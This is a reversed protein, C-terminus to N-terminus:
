RIMNSRSIPKKWLLMWVVSVIPKWYKAMPILRNAMPASALTEAYWARIEVRRNKAMGEPTGNTAVPQSEGKGSATFATAPLNLRTKLYTAVSLARDESLAQNNPYVPLLRKAIRQSDTHGVIEIRVDQKDKLSALLKDLEAVAAPLLKARGSEFNNGAIHDRVSVSQQAPAVPATNELMTRRDTITLSSPNLADFQSPQIETTRGIV